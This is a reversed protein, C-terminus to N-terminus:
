GEVVVTMAGTAVPVSSMTARDLASELRAKRIPKLLYDVANAEIAALAHSDYATTFIVAPPRPLASLHRAVEIGDMGPMRIDLLVIDPDSEEVARLADTGNGAEGAIEGAGLEGVLAKLRSRALPEDDVILIKM